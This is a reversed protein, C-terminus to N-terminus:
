RRRGGMFGFVGFLLITGLLFGLNYMSGNNHVEYMQVAPNFFSVFLTILAVLGHWLGTGFGPVRGNEAPENLQPNVGPLTLQIETNLENVEVTSGPACATLTLIVAAFLVILSTRKM